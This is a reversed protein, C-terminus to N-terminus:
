NIQPQAADPRPHAGSPHPDPERAHAPPTDVTSRLLMFIMVEAILASMRISGMHIPPIPTLIPNSMVRPTAIRMIVQIVRILMAPKHTPKPRIMAPPQATAPRSPEPEIAEVKTYSRIVIPKGISPQPILILNHDIVVRIMFAPIQGIVRPKPSIGVHLIHTALLYEDTTSTLLPEGM